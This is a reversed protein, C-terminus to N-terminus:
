NNFFFNVYVLLSLFLTGLDVNLNVMQITFYIAISEQGNSNFSICIFSVVSM